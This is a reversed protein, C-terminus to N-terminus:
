SLTPRRWAAVGLAVIWVILLVSAPMNILMSVDSFGTYAMVIGAIATPIGSVLALAGLWRPFRHDILLAIGYVAVTLGFLISSMSALGIEIQRVAFTAHLLSTKELETATAWRDVMVKLAVGDVAQLAAAMAISASAGIRVVPTWAAAPGEELTRSFLVLATVLLVAGCLQLLHSAVWHPDAAYETFAATPVNPDASMPHLYTGILLLSAGLIGSILGVRNSPTKQM